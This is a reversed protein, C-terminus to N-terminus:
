DALMKELDAFVESVPRAKGAKISKEGEELKKILDEKSRVILREPVNSEDMVYSFKVYEIYDIIKDSLEEPLTEIANYLEQKQSSM